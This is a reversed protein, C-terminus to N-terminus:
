PSRLDSILERLKDRIQTILSDLLVLEDAVIGPDYNEARACESLKLSSTLARDFHTEAHRAAPKVMAELTLRLDVDVDSSLTAEQIKNRSARLKGQVKAIDQPVVPPSRPILELAETLLSEASSLLESTSTTQSNRSQMPRAENRSYWNRLRILLAEGFFLAVLAVVLAAIAVVLNWDPSPSL